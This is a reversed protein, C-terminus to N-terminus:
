NKQKNKKKLCFVAYSSRMLSQLESPHEESRGVFLSLPVNTPRVPPAKTGTIEAKMTPLRYEDVRISQDTWFTNDRGNKGKTVFVLDYEGMPASKPVAWSTGGSGSADISFPVEVENDSGRDVLRLKGAMPEAVGFGTGSPRRCVHMM